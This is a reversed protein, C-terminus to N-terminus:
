GLIGQGLHRFKLRVNEMSRNERGALRGKGALRGARSQVPRADASKAAKSRLAQAVTERVSALAGVRVGVGVGM